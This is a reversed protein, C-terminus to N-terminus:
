CCRQVSIPVPSRPSSRAPPREISLSPAWMSRKISAVFASNAANSARFMVGTEAWAATSSQSVVRANLTANGTVSEELFDFQDATGTTGVGSSEITYRGGLVSAAESTPAGIEVNSMGAPLPDATKVLFIADLLSASTNIETSASFTFVHTGANLTFEPTTYSAFATSTPTITGVPAGDVSVLIPQASFNALQAADLTIDFTGADTVVSQTFSGSNQGNGSQLFAVQSGQPANSAGWSTVDSDIGAAGAFTWGPVNTPDTVSTGSALAAARLQQRPVAGARGDDPRTAMRTCITGFISRIDAHRGGASETAGSDLLLYMPKNPILSPKTFTAVEVGDLYYTVHDPEWDCGYTHYGQTLNEETNVSFDEWGGPQHFRVADITPQGAFFDFVDIEFSDTYDATLMWLSSWFDGPALKARAEIYGYTFTFSPSTQGQVGGTTILGGRYPTTVGSISTAPQDVISLDLGNSSTSVEGPEDTAEDLLNDNYWYKGNTWVNTNLTNFDDDFTLNWNGPIPPADPVVSQAQTTATVPSSQASTNGATDFAAVTYTYSTSPTLGWDSYSTTRPDVTAIAAGDRYVTYGAVDVNDTSASWQILAGVDTTTVVSLNQPITPSQTDPPLAPDIFLGNVVANLGGTCVVQFVVHGSVNFSIYKGYTYFRSVAESALVAGTSADLVDVREARDQRDWDDLYLSVEHTQGDLLNLDLTVVSTGCWCSAVRGEGNQLANEDTTTTSWVAGSDSTTNLVAFPSLTNNGNLIDAGQSGYTGVWNGQTFPDVNVLAATAPAATPDLFIGNVIANPGATRTVRFDM